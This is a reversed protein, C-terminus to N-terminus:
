QRHQQPRGGMEQGESGSRPPIKEFISKYAGYGEKELDEKPIFRLAASNICYRKGSPLPGDDFVHGLHSDASRSRVETRETFFSRDKREIVNGGALPRIFSPWGTKSDYKDLSSFLPEGSVVDVYIGEKKNDWYENEFPRETGNKRTVKYQLPTLKKKLEEDEPMVFQGSDFSCVMGERDVNSSPGKQLNGQWKRKLFQDRGSHLRYFRYRYPHRKYYDQHNIQAEYFVSAKVIETVIPKKFVGSKQLNEKSSEALKREDENNYFIVSRYESGRDVFQGGEDTPDIQRWYVNLLEEYTVASPDYVVKITEVYGTVGSAVEEYTPDKKEGGMYGSVVNIVGETKEFPPEMCWFCGGAFFAEATKSGAYAASCVFFLIPLLALGKNILM